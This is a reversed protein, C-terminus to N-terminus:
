CDDVEIFSKTEALNKTLSSVIAKRKIHKSMNKLSRFELFQNKKFNFFM